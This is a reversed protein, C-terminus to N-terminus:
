KSYFLIDGTWVLIIVLFFSINLWSSVGKPLKGHPACLERQGEVEDQEWDRLKDEEQSM